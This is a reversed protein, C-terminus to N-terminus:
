AFMAARRGFGGCADRLPSLPITMVWLFTIM